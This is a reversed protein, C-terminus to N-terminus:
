DTDERLQSGTYPNDLNAPSPLVVGGRGANGPEIDQFIVVVDERRAGGQEVLADTIGRIVEAKQKTSRGPSWYVLVTPM